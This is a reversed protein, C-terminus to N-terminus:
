KAAKLRKTIEVVAADATDRVFGAKDSERAKRLPGLAKKGGVRALVSAAYQRVPAERASLMKLLAAEAEENDAGAAGLVEMAAMRVEPNPDGVHKIGIALAEKGALDRLGLLAWYRVKPHSDGLAEKLQPVVEADGSAALAALAEARVEGKASKLHGRALEVGGKDGLKGLAMAARLGVRLDRDQLLPKLADVGGGEKAAKSYGLAYAAWYRVKWSRNKVAAVLAELSEKGLDALKSAAKEASRGRLDRVLKKVLRADAWAPTSALSLLALIMSCRSLHMKV